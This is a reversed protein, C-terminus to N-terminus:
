SVAKINVKDGAKPCIPYSLSGAAIPVGASTSASSATADADPSSGFAAAVMSDEGNGIVIMEDELATATTTGPVTINERVRVAGIGSASFQPRSRIFSVVVTM